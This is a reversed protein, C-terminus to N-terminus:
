KAAPNRWVLATVNVGGEALKIARGLERQCLATRHDCPEGAYYKRLVPLARPDGLQGLAWVARNRDALSHRSDEVFRLLAEVRDGEHQLMAQNSAARVGAGIGLSVFVFAALLAAAILAGAGILIWRVRRSKFTM